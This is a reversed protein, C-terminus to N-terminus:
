GAQAPGTGSRPNVVKFGSLSRVHIRTGHHGSNPDYAVVKGNGNNEIIAFVHGRRVAVM